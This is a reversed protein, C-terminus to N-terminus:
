YVRARGNLVREDEELGFLTNVKVRLQGVRAHCDLCRAPAAYTDHGDISQEGGSVRFESAGCSPCKGPVHVSTAGDAPTPVQRVSGNPLKLTIKM